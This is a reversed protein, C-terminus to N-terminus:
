HGGADGINHREEGRVVRAPDRADARRWRRCTGKPRAHLHDLLHALTWPPRENGAPFGLGSWGSRQQELLVETCPRIPPASAHLAAPKLASGPVLPDRRKPRCRAPDGGRALQGPQVHQRRTRSAGVLGPLIVKLMAPVLMKSWDELLQPGLVDDPAVDISASCDFVQLPLKLPCPTGVEPHFTHSRPRIIVPADVALKASLQARGVLGGEVVTAAVLGSTSLHQLGAGAGAAGQARRCAGRGSRGHHHRRPDGAAPQRDRHPDPLPGGAADRAGARGARAAQAGAFRGPGPRQDRVDEAEQAVVV